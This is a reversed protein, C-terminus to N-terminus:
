GLYAEISAFGNAPTIMEGELCTGVILGAIIASGVLLISRRRWKWTAQKM